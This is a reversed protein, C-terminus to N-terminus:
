RSCWSATRHQASGAQSPQVPQDPLTKPGMAWLAHIQISRSGHRCWTSTRSCAQRHRQKFFYKTIFVLSPTNSSRRSSCCVIDSANETKQVCHISATDTEISEDPLWFLLHRWVFPPPVPVCSLCPPSDTKWKKANGQAQIGQPRPHAAAAATAHNYSQQRDTTRHNSSVSTSSFLHHSQSTTIGKDMWTHLYWYFTIQSSSTYASTVGM